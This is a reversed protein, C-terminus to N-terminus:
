SYNQEESYFSFTKYVVAAIQAKDLYGLLTQTERRMGVMFIIVHEERLWSEDKSREVRVKHNCNREEDGEGARRGSVGGGGTRAGKREVWMGERDGNGGVEGCHRGHIERVSLPTGQGSLPSRCRNREGGEMDREEEFLM